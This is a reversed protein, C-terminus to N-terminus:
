ATDLYVYRAIDRIDGIKLTKPDDGKTGTCFAIRFECEPEFVRPKLFAMKWCVGNPGYAIDHPYRTYYEVPEACATFGERDIAIWAQDLFERTETIVVVHNGFKSPLDPEFTIDDDRDGSSRTGAQTLCFINLNDVIEFYLPMDDLWNRQPIDIGAINLAFSPDDKQILFTGEKSDARISDEHNRFAKLRQAFLNGDLMKDAHAKKTFYKLLM